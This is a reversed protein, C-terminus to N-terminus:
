GRRELLMNGLQVSPYEEFGLASCPSRASTGVNVKCFSSCKMGFHAGFNDAM